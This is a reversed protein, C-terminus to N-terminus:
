PRYEYVEYETKQGLLADIQNQINAREKSSQWAKWASLSDWTSIVLYDNQSDVNKLSEGSVYGPQKMSLTRLQMVLEKLQAAKDAAVKRKILIKVAM